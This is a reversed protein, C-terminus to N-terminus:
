KFKLYGIQDRDQKFAEEFEEEIALRTEPVSTVKM